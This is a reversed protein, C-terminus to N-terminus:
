SLGGTSVINSCFGDGTWCSGVVRRLTDNFMLFFLKAQADRTNRVPIIQFHETPVVIGVISQGALRPFHGLLIAGWENADVFEDEARFNGSPTSHEQEM